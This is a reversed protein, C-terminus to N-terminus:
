KEAQTANPISFIVQTHSNNRKKQRENRVHLM